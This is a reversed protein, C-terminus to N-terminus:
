LDAHRRTDNVLAKGIRFVAYSLVLVVLCWVIRWPYAPHDPLSPAAVREVYIHQRMGDMRAMEVAGLATTLARESFGWELMLKEYEAIRPAIAAADGALRQREAGIQAELAAQRNRLSSIQPGGPSGSQLERLQVNVQAVEQALRAIAELVAQTAHSPDILAERERFATLASQAANARQRMREVESEAFAVADHRARDNLRNVLVEAAALLASALRHAEAPSFAQIRLTSVGTTTDLSVSILRRYHKFRGEETASTLFNPFRWLFDAKTNAIAEDLGAHKRLYEMADRSELYDRVIFSDDIGRAMGAGQVLNALAAGPLTTGPARVVFRTESEFRDAAIWVFYVIAALTPLLVFLLVGYLSRLRVIAGASAKPPPAPEPRVDVPLAPAAVSVGEVPTLKLLRTYTQFDQADPM